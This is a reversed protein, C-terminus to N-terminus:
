YCTGYWPEESPFGIWFVYTTSHQICSCQPTGDAQIVGTNQCDTYGTIVTGFMPRRETENGSEDGEISGSSLAFISALAFAGIFLKKKM